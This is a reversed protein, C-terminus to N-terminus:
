PLPQTIQPSKWSRVCGVEMWHRQAEFDGHMPPKDFGSYPHTSVAWRVAVSAAVLAAVLAAAM